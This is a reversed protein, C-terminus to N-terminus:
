CAAAWDGGGFDVDDDPYFGGDVPYFIMDTGGQYYHRDNDNKLKKRIAAKSPVSDPHRWGSNMQMKCGSNKMYAPMMQFNSLQITCNNIM